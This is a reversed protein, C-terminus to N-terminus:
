SGISYPVFRVFLLIGVTVCVVGVATSLLAHHVAHALKVGAFMGAIEMATVFGALTFNISGFSLNATTGSLAAIVQIVQSAGVSALAPFGLLLM